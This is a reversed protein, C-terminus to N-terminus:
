AMSHLQVMHLLTRGYQTKELDEVINKVANKQVRAGFAATALIVVLLLAKM